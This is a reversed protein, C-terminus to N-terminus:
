DQWYPPYGPDFVTNGRGGKIPRPPNRQRYKSEALARVDRSSAFKSVTELECDTLQDLEGRIEYQNLTAVKDQKMTVWIRCELRLRPKPAFRKGKRLKNVKKRGSKKAIRPM